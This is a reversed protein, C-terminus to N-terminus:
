KLTQKYDNLFRLEEARLWEAEDMTLHGGPDTYVTQHSSYYLHTALKETGTTIEAAYGYNTHLQRFFALESKKQEINLRLGHYMEGGFVGTGHIVTGEKISFPNESRSLVADRNLIILSSHYHGPEGSLRGYRGYAPQERANLNDYYFTDIPGAAIFELLEMEEVVEDIPQHIFVDQEAMVVWKAQCGNLMRNMPHVMNEQHIGRSVVEAEFGHDTIIKIAAEEEEPHQIHLIFKRVSEKNKLHYAWGQIAVELCNLNHNVPICIDFKM